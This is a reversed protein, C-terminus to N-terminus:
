ALAKVRCGGEWAEGAELTVWGKVSGPEVCVMKKYGDPVPGFDSM